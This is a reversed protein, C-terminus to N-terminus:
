IPAVHGLGGVHRVGLKHGEEVNEKLALVLNQGLYAQISHKARSRARYNEKGVEWKAKGDLGM